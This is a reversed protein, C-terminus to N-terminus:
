QSSNATPIPQKANLDQTKSNRNQQELTKLNWSDAYRRLRMKRLEEEHDQGGPLRSLGRGFTSKINPKGEPETRLFNSYNGITLKELTSLSAAADKQQLIFFFNLNLKVIECCIVDFHVVKICLGFLAM